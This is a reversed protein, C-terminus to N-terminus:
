IQLFTKLQQIQSFDSVISMAGARILRTRKDANLGYRRIEDSAIGMTLGGRQFTERMEVPGDGFTILHNRAAGIDALIRDLVVQKAEQDMKGESGYIRGQFLDAYGLATAEAIVDPTDTGSALYLKIGAKHLLHLFQPANKLVVDEIELEGKELREIRRKVRQMLADNYIEKYGKADLIRDGPVLEFERVMNVLGQMQTLTQIGTTQDIYKNVRARIRHYLSEDASAYHDGMIARIMMPEMVEEWGERLTSITGDHDFIAIKIDVADPFSRVVEIDSDKWYRAQRQDKALEPEYVYAPHTGTALIEQPTATGTRGIKTITVAAVFNGIQAAQDLSAEAAMSAALGALFSDGAGVSDIKGLVQIGPISLSQKPGQVVCGRDGCTVIIPKKYREYLEKAAQVALKKPVIDHPDFSHGIRQGAEHDNIKLWASTYVDHIHRGDYIFIKDPQDDMVKKLCAQFFLTHIGSEVQQNVIIVNFESLQAAFRDILETATHDSLQNFNGMDLRSLEEEGIFPKCYTLTQWYEPSDTILHECNVEKDLLLRYLEEGFPDQGRVGFAYVEGVGMDVLNAVVNGAGGLSYRQERVPHTEKGTELSKESRDMDIIWYVDLCFDGIVAIKAEQIAGLINKLPEKEIWETHHM